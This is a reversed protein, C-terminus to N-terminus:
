GAWNTSKFDECAAKFEDEMGKFSKKVVLKERLSAGKGRFYELLATEFENVRELSVDDLFGRAGAFISICQDIDDMPVFQGQKLLEAMRQGRTLQRQSAPDLDTGLQAFAELERFAALDLRLSGAIEKM